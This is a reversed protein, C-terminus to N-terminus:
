RHPGGSQMKRRSGESARGQRRRGGPAAFAWGAEQARLVIRACAEADSLAEHHRLPIGLRSCVDPLKTPHIRWTARALSVTCVFPLKPPNVAARACCAALVGRDFPANHAALFAVGRLLRRVAPWVRDFGPASEVDEWALGHIHTFCFWADPPRILFQERAVIAGGSAVVIGVACASDFSPNATEFDIAAFTSM